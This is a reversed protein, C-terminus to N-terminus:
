TSKSEIEYQISYWLVAFGLLVLIHFIEHYSFISPWLIPIRNRELLAAGGLIFVGAGYFLISKIGCKLFIKFLSVLGILFTISYFILGPWGLLKEFFLNKLVLGTATVIIIMLDFYKRDRAEFHKHHLALITFLFCIWISSHDMRRFFEMLMPQDLFQFFHYLSSMALVIMAGFGFIWVPQVNPANKKAAKQYPWWLRLILIFGLAHIIASILHDM